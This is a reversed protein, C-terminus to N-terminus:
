GFIAPRGAVAKADLLNIGELGAPREIGAAQLVTPAIDIASVPTDCIQAAVKGPWRVLIPTRLGGDYPSQKSRPASREAQPDQIWGNDALFIVLTDQALKQADLFDLLEGCTEDFWECMAWYKAVAPSPATERYHALLREPPNHPQHPMMPAYWLFFPAKRVEALEIFLFVPKMGRRGIALGADGHRGGRDPEGHTMGHTFGGRQYSGGWWKGSQFSLYDKSALLRPLAPMDDFVQIMARRRALFEPDRPAAREDVGPPLPPDNSTIKHQHPYRGTLISALSPSCLSSTVYGRRFVLSQSALRDLRPTHIRPHGMFGYDTWGMDDAIILVVNPPRDGEAAFAYSTLGALGALLIVSSPLVKLTSVM